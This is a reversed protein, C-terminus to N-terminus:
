DEPRLVADDISGWAGSGEGECRVYIGITIVDGSQCGIGTIEATNWAGYGTISLTQKKVIEGNIKVYAYIECDGSQGGMISISFQYTREDAIDVSQELSFHVSNQTAGWFHFCGDGTLADEPRIVADLEDANGYNTLIWEPLLTGDDFSSNSLYNGPSHEIPEEIIAGTKDIYASYKKNDAGIFEIRARGERFDYLRTIKFNVARTSLDIVVEGSTNYYYAVTNVNGISLGYFLGESVKGIAATDCLEGTGNLCYSPYVSGIQLQIVHGQPNMIYDYGFSFFVYGEGIDYKEAYCEINAITQGYSNIVDHCYRNYPGAKTRVFFYDGCKARYQIDYEEWQANWNSVIEGDTTVIAISEEVYNYTSINRRIFFLNDNLVYIPIVTYEVYIKRLKKVFECYEKFSFREKFFKYQYLIEKEDEFDAFLSIYSEPDIRYEYHYQGFDAIQNETLGSEAMRQEVEGIKCLYEDASLEANYFELYAWKQYYNLGIIKVYDQASMQITGNQVLDVYEYAAWPSVKLLSIYSESDIYIYYFGEYDAIQNETLGAEKLIVISDRSPETAQTTGPQTAQTTGPQTAQTTGPQTAQTVESQTPATAIPRNDTNVNSMQTEPAEEGCACILLAFVLAFLMVIIKKM